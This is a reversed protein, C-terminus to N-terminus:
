VHNSPMEPPRENPRGTATAKPISAENTPKEASKSKTQSARTRRAEIAVCIRLDARQSRSLKSIDNRDVADAHLIERLAEEKLETDCVDAM